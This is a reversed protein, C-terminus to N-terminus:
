VCTLPGTCVVQLLVSEEIRELCKECVVTHVYDWFLSLLIQINVHEHVVFWRVSNVLWSSSKHNERQVRVTNMQLMWVSPITQIKKDIYLNVNIYLINITLIQRYTLKDIPNYHEKKSWQQIGTNIYCRPGTLCSTENWQIYGCTASHCYLEVPVQHLSCKFFLYFILGSKLLRFTM